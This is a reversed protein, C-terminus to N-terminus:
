RSVPSSFNSSTRTFHWCSTCFMMTSSDLGKRKCVASLTYSFSLSSWAADDNCGTMPLQINKTHYITILFLEFSCNSTYDATKNNAQVYRCVILLCYLSSGCEMGAIVASLTCLLLRIPLLSHLLSLQSDKRILQVNFTDYRITYCLLTLLSAILLLKSSNSKAM